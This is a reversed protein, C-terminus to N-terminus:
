VFQGLRDEVVMDSAFLRFRVMVHRVIMAADACPKLGGLGKHYSKGPLQRVLGALELEFLAAIVESSSTGELTEILHDLARDSRGTRLVVESDGEGRRVAWEPHKPIRPM